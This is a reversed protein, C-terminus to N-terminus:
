SKLRPFYYDRLLTFAEPYSAVLCVNAFETITLEADGDIARQLKKQHIGSKEAVAYVASHSPCLSQYRLLAEKIIHGVTLPAENDTKLSM